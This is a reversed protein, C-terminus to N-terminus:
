EQMAQAPPIKLAIRVPYLSAVVGIALVVVLSTVISGLSPVPHLVKGGFLIEFFVNPAEIGTAHLVWLVVLGVGVGLLGFVGSTIVTEWVILRRILSKQAGLARMTGIETTREMVSIVLTNMIIIVAVVAIVLVIVNFIAKTGNALLAISGAGRLWGSAVAEIGHEDFYRQFQQIAWAPDVGEELKVLLFHWADSQEELPEGAWAGFDFTALLEEEDLVAASAEDTEVVVGGFLEDFAGGFLAEENIDSSLLAAEQETLEAVALSSLNMGALARANTIDLLSVFDLQPNSQRFRFIGRIPVERVKIGAAQSMSTLLLPEGPALDVDGDKELIRAIEASLLIGEEGPALMRGEVIEINDPFMRVYYAPDIGFALTFGRKEGYDVLAMVTAQPNVQRVFPQASVYALVEQFSPITPLPEDLTEADELGMLSLFRESKGTIVIHGTYSEVYTKEIGRSATDMLSNGVVLVTIGITILVGIILTKTRHRLINRVAIKAVVSM